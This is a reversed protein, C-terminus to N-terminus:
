VRLDSVIKLLTIACSPTVCQTAEHAVKTLERAVVCQRDQGMVQAADKLVALLDHPPVYFVLTHTVDACV